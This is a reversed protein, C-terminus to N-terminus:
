WPPDPLGEDLQGGAACGAARYEDPLLPFDDHFYARALALAQGHTAGLLMATQADRQVAMCEALGESRVQRMHMSEHTLVHVAQVQTFSPHRKDSRLYAALDRCPEFKLTTAREMGGDATYRVYGAEIGADVFAAGFTQCHMRVPAGALASAVRALTAEEHSRWLGPVATAIGLGTLASVSFVPFRRPSGLRDRPHFIWRLSSWAAGALLALAIYSLLGM